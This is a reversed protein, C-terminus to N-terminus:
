QSDQISQPDMVNVVLNMGNVVARCPCPTRATAEADTDADANADADADADPDADADADADADFDPLCPYVSKSLSFGVRQM